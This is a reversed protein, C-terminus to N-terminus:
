AEESEHRAPQNSLAASAFADAEHEYSSDAAGVTMGSSGSTDMTRQQVVHAVEHAMTSHDSPSVDNRLFIDNGTTFAKASISRNLSDSEAGSHVRVGELSTGLSSEMSSRFGSELGSGSGRQSDIRGAIDDGVPGGELGVQPASVEESYRQAASHDHLAMAKLESSEDEEMEEEGERQALAADHLAMVKLESSEDEEMEEEGERQALAPDHLAMMEDEPAGERQAVLRSVVGNGVHRQLNLLPHSPTRNLVTTSKKARIEAEAASRSLSGFSTM